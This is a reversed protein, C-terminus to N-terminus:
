CTLAFRRGRVRHHAVPGHEPNAPDLPATAYATGDADRWLLVGAALVADVIRERQPLKNEDNGVSVGAITFSKGGDAMNAIGCFTTSTAAPAIPGPSASPGAKVSGACRRKGPPVNASRIPM